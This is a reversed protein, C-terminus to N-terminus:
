AAAGQRTLQKLGPLMARGSHFLKKGDRGKDEQDLSWQSRTTLFSKFSKEARHGKHPYLGVFPVLSFRTEM